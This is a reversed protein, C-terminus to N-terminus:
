PGAQCFGSNERWVGSPERKEKSELSWARRKTKRLEAVLQVGAPKGRRKDRLGEDQQKKVQGVEVRDWGRPWKPHKHTKVALSM